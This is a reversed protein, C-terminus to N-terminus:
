CPLWRWWGVCVAACRATTGGSFYKRASGEYTYSYLSMATEKLAWARATKLESRRLAAFARWDADDMHAPHRLWDYRTGVLRQDGEARLVRNEKRIAARSFRRKSFIM